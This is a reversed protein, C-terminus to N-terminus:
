SASRPWSLRWPLGPHWRLAAAMHTHRYCAKKPWASRAIALSENLTPTPRSDRSTISLFVVPFPILGRRPTRRCRSRTCWPSSQVPMTPGGWIYAAEDPQPMHADMATPSTWATAVSVQWGHPAVDSLGVAHFDDHPSTFTVTVEFEEGPMLGDEPLGRVPDAPGMATVVGAGVLLALLSGILLVLLVRGGRGTLKVKTQM